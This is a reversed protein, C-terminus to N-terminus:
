AIKYHGKKPEDILGEEMYLKDIVRKFKEQTISNDIRKVEDYIEEYLMAHSATQLIGLIVDKLDDESSLSQEENIPIIIATTPYGKIKINKYEYEVKMEDLYKKVEKISDFQHMGYSELRKALLNMGM